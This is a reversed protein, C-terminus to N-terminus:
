RADLPVLKKKQRENKALRDADFKNAVVAEEPTLKQGGERKSM